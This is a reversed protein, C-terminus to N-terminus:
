WMSRQRAGQTPYTVRLLGVALHDVAHDLEEGPVVLRDPGLELPLHARRRRLLPELVRRPVAVAQVRDLPEGLALRDLAGRDPRDVHDPERDPM